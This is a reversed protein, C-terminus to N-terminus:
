KTPLIYWPSYTVLVYWHQTLILIIPLYQCPCANLYPTSQGDLMLERFNDCSPSTSNTNWV